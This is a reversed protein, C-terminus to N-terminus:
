ANVKAHALMAEVAALKESEQDPEGSVIPETGDGALGWGLAAGDAMDTSIELAYGRPWFLSRNIFWLLGTSQLEAFDRVGEVDVQDLLEALRGCAADADWRGDAVGALLTRVYGIVTTASPDGM